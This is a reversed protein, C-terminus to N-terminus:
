VVQYEVQISLICGSIHLLNLRVHLGTAVELATVM